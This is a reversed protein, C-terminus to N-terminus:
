DGTSLSATFDLNMSHDADIECSAEVEAQDLALTNGSGDQYECDSCTLSCGTDECIGGTATYGEPCDGCDGFCSLVKIRCFEVTEPFDAIIRGEAYHANFSIEFAGITDSVELAGFAFSDGANRTAELGSFSDSSLNSFYASCPTAETTSSGVEYSCEDFQAFTPVSLTDHVAYWGSSVELVGSEALTDIDGADEGWVIELTKGDALSLVLHEDRQGDASVLRHYYAMDASVLTSDADDVVSISTMDDLFLDTVDVDEPCIRTTTSGEETSCTCRNLCMVAFFLFITAIRVKSMFVRRESEKEAVEKCLKRVTQLDMQVM